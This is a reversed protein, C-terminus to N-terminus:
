IEEKAAVVVKIGQVVEPHLEIDISYEGVEKLTGEPLRISSKELDIGKEVPYFYIAEELDKSAKQARSESGDVDEERAGGDTGGALCGQSGCRRHTERRCSEKGEVERVM